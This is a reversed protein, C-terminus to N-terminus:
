KKEKSTKKYIFIVLLFEAIIVLPLIKNLLKIASITAVFLSVLSASLIAYRIIKDRILIFAMLLALLFTFIMRGLNVKNNYADMVKNFDRYCYSCEVQCNKKHIINGETKYCFNIYEEDYSCNNDPNINTEPMYGYNELYCTDKPKELFLKDITFVFSIVLAFILTFIIINYITNELKKSKTKINM